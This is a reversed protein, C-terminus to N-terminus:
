LNLLNNYTGGFSGQIPQPQEKWITIPIFRVVQNDRQKCDKCCWRWHIKLLSLDAGWHEIAQDVPVEAERRCRPCKLILGANCIRYDNIIRLIRQSM